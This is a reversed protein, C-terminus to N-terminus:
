DNKLLRKAPVKITVYTGVKEESEIEFVAERETCLKLRLCANLMGVHMGGKIDDVTCNNMRDNLFSIDKESMGQGTDEIEMVIYENKEYVRIYIWCTTTKGEIGHVCSNEVFTVLTLRPIRYDRCKESLEISFKLRDGFRYQMLELYAKIFSMEKEITSFDNAWSVNQRVLLALKEIMTATEKENKLISRMRVTELINFLFHPDIQSHLASLEANQRALKIEQNELKRTYTTEILNNLRNAMRNYGRMVGAIEDEGESEVEIEKINELDLKDFANSLKYLRVAFSRNIFYISILPVFINFLLLVIILIPNNNLAMIANSRQRTVVIRLDSGYIGWPEEYGIRVNDSISEFDALASMQQSNSLVVNDGVCLYVEGPYTVSELKRQLVSYDLDVDVLMERGYWKYHDLKRVISIRRKSLSGLYSGGVYYFRLAIKGSSEEYAKYVERDKLGEFDYFNGGKIITENDGALIINMISAERGGELPNIVLNKMEMRKVYFDYGSAYEEDLFKYVEEDLYIKNIVKIAEDFTSGIQYKVSNAVNVMELRSERNESRIILGLIVGDTVMLPLFMCIVYVLILKNKISLNNLRRYIRQTLNSLM